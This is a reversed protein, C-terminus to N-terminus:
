FDQSGCFSGQKNLYLKAICLQIIMTNDISFFQVYRYEAKFVRGSSGVGLMRGMKLDKYNVEQFTFQMTKNSAAMDEMDSLVADTDYYRRGKRKSILMTSVCLSSVLILILSGIATPVIVIPLLYKSLDSNRKDKQGANLPFSGFRTNFLFSFFSCAVNALVDRQIPLKRPCKHWMMKLPLTLDRSIFRLM